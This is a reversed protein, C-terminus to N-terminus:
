TKRIHYFATKCVNQVHQELSMSEDFIVGINKASTSPPIGVDAVAVNRILPRWRHKASLM